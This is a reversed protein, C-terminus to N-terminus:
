SLIYCRDFLALPFVSCNFLCVIDERAFKLYSASLTNYTVYLFMYMVYVVYLGVSKQQSVAHKIILHSSLTACYFSVDGGGRDM